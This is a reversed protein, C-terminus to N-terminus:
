HLPLPQNPRPYGMYSCVCVYVCVSVCQPRDESMTAPTMNVQDHVHKEASDVIGVDTHTHQASATIIM